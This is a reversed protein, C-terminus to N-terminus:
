AVARAVPSMTSRTSAIWDSVSDATSAIPSIAAMMARTFSKWVVIALATSSCDAVVPSIFRLTLSVAVADLSMARFM